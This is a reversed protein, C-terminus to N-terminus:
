PSIFTKLSVFIYFYLNYLDTGFGYEYLGILEPAGTTRTYDDISFVKDGIKLGKLDDMVDTTDLKPVTAAFAGVPPLCLLITILIITLKKVINM